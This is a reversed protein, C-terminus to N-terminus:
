LTVAPNSLKSKEDRLLDEVVAIFARLQEDCPSSALEAKAARLYRGINTLSCLESLTQQAPVNM